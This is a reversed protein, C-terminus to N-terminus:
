ARAKIQNAAREAWLYIVGQPHMSPVYPISAADVISLGIVKKVTLDPNVVGWDANVPSMAATGIPHWVSRRIDATFRFFPCRLPVCTGSNEAAYNILQTDTTAGNFAGTTNLYGQMAPAEAYRLASRLAYVMLGKDFDTNLWNPNIIPHAFPDKSALGVTGRSTPTLLCIVISVYSKGVEADESPFTGHQIYM